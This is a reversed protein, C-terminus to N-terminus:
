KRKHKNEEEKEKHNGYHSCKVDYLQLMRIQIKVLRVKIVYLFEAVKCSWGREKQNNIDCFQMKICQMGWFMFQEELHM